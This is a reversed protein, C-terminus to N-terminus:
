GGYRALAEERARNAEARVSSAYVMAICAAAIGSVVSM